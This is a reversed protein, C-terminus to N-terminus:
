QRTRIIRTEKSGCTCATVVETGKTLYGEYDKKGNHAVWGSLTFPLAGDALVWEGNYKRTLHIHTGTSFGAECSPHGLPEDKAVLSDVPRLKDSLLHLIVIVWGTQERGDGDLDLVLLGNESRVVRGAAPALVWQQSPVCGSVDSGPAFDLAARASGTSWAGHPGGTFSWTIEYYFPLDLAPQTIGYPFLPEIAEARAWPSGFLREYLAPFGQSSYLVGAWERANYLKSFFVQLAATGANAEPALRMRGQNPFNIETLEGARWGYYGDMLQEVAWGLQKFLGRYNADYFGLPFETEALNGPQGTVWHAQFELLALLLRPNFSNDTAVMQIIEAGTKMGSSVYEKYTNLYGKSDRVYAKVDFGLATPSYVVESDPLVKTPPSTEGLDRPIILLQGPKLLGQKAIPDPSSIEGPQVSFRATIAALTDGSQVTYMVPPSKTPTLTPTIDTRPPQTVVLATAQRLTPRPTALFPNDTAAPESQALGVLNLSCAQLLLSAILIVVLPTFREARSKTQRCAGTGPKSLMM